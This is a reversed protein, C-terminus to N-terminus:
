HSTTRVVAVLAIYQWSLKSITAASDITSCMREQSQLLKIPVLTASRDCHVCVCVRLQKNAYDHWHLNLPSLVSPESKLIM